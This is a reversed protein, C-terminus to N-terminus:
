SASKLIAESNSLIENRMEYLLQVRQHHQLAELQKKEEHCQQLQNEYNQVMMDIIGVYHGKYYHDYDINLLADYRELIEKIDKEVGEYQMQNHKISVSLLITELLQNKM